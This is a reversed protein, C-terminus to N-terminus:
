PLPQGREAYEVHNIVPSSEKKLFHSIHDYEPETEYIRHTRPSIGRSMTIEYHAPDTTTPGWRILQAIYKRNLYTGRGIFLLGRNM